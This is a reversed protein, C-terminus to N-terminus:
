HWITIKEFFLSKKTDIKGLIKVSVLYFGQQLTAMGAKFILDNNENLYSSLVNYTKEAM